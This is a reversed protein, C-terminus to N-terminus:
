ESKKTVKKNNNDKFILIKRLGYLEDFTHTTVTAMIESPKSLASSINHLVMEVTRIELSWPLIEESSQSHAYRLFHLPELARQSFFGGCHVLSCNDSM